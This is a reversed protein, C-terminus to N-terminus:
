LVEGLTIEGREQLEDLIRCMDMYHAKTGKGASTNYHEKWYAAREIRTLPIAAPVVKYRLRAIIMAALPNRDLESYLLDGLRFGFAAKIKEDVATGQYKSVLWDFTGKDVQSVGAGAYGETKDPVQGFGTEACTTELLSLTAVNYKGTGLCNSVAKAIDVLHQPKVLGYM